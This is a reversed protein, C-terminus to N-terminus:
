NFQVTSTSSTSTNVLQLFYYCVRLVRTTSHELIGTHLYFIGTSTYRDTHVPVKVVMVDDDEDDFM